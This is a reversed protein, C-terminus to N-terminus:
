GCGDIQDCGNKYLLFYTKGRSEVSEVFEARVSETMTGGKGCDTMRTFVDIGVAGLLDFGVGEEGAYLPVGKM